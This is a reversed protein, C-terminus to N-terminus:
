TLESKPTWGLRGGGLDKVKSKEKARKTIEDRVKKVQEAVRADFWARLDGTYTAWNADWEQGASTAWFETRPKIAVDAYYHVNLPNDKGFIEATVHWRNMEHATKGVLADRIVADTDTLKVTKMVGYDMSLHLPKAGAKGAPTKLYHAAAAAGPKGGTLLEWLDERMITQRLKHAELWAQQVRYEAELFTKAAVIEGQLKQLLQAPLGQKLLAIKERDTPTMPQLAAAVLGLKAEIEGLLKGVDPLGTGFEAATTRASKITAADARLDTTATGVRETATKAALEAKALDPEISDLAASETPAFRALEPFRLANVRGRIQVARNRVAKVSAAAGGLEGRASDADAELGMRRALDDIEALLGAEMEHASRFLRTDAVARRLSALESTFRGQVAHGFLPSLRAELRGLAQTHADSTDPRKAAQAAALEAGHREAGRAREASRRTTYATGQPSVIVPQRPGSAALAADTAALRDDRRQHLAQLRARRREEEIAAKAREYAGIDDEPHDIVPGVPVLATEDGPARSLLQAVARNGATRQLRMVREHAPAARNAVRARSRAEPDLRRGVDYSGVAVLRGEWLGASPELRDAAVRRHKADL